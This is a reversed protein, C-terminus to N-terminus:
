ASIGPKGMGGLLKASSSEVFYPDSLLECLESWGEVHLPWQDRANLPSAFMIGTGAFGEFHYPSDDVLVDAAVISKQGCFVLREVALFPLHREVWAFKEGFAHPVFMASSVLFVDYREYLWRMGDISGDIPALSAFFGPKMMCDTANPTAFTNCVVGDMDVAIRM